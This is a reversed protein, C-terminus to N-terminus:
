TYCVVHVQGLERSWDGAAIAMFDATRRATRRGNTHPDGAGKDNEFCGFCWM